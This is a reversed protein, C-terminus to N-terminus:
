NFTNRNEGGMHRYASCDGGTTSMWNSMEPTSGKTIIRFAIFKGSLICNCIRVTNSTQPKWPPSFINKRRRIHSVTYHQISNCVNRLFRGDKTNKTAMECQEALAGRVSQETLSGAAQDRWWEYIVRRCGLGVKKYVSSQPLLNRWVV